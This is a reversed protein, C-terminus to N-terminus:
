ASYKPSPATKMYITAKLSTINNGKSEQWGVLGPGIHEKSVM